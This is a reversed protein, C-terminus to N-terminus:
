GFLVSNIQTKYRNYYIVDACLVPRVNRGLCGNQIHLWKLTTFSKTHEKCIVKIQTSVTILHTRHSSHSPPTPPTGSGTYSRHYWSCNWPTRHRDTSRTRRECGREAEVPRCDGVLLTGRRRDTVRIHKTRLSVRRQHLLEKSAMVLKTNGTNFCGGGFLIYFLVWTSNLLRSRVHYSVVENAVNLTHIENSLFLVNADVTHHPTNPGSTPPRVLLYPQRGTVTQPLTNAALLITTLENEVCILTSIAVYPSNAPWSESQWRWM